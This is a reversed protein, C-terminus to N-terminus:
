AASYLTMSLQYAATENELVLLSGSGTNVNDGFNYRDTLVVGNWTPQSGIRLEEFTDVNGKQVIYQQSPTPTPNPIWVANYNAETRQMTIDGGTVAITVDVPTAWAGYQNSPDSSTVPDPMNDVAFDFEVLSFPVQDDLVQEPMTDATHALAGSFMQVGNVTVTVNASVKDDAVVQFEMQVQKTGM